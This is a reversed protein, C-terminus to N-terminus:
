TMNWIRNRTINVKGIAGGWCETIRQKTGNKLDYAWYWSEYQEEAVQTM